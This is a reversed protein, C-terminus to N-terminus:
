PSLWILSAMRGTVGERRYSYFSEAGTYTCHDGGYVQTVGLGALRQRALSYIDMLGHGPRTAVFAAAAQPDPDVFAQRVEAGVEYAAPGIAPGLWVLIQDPPGTFQDLSAEIVGRALGRWGAHIAAVQTGARDCVLLPLCDATLVACVVGPRDSYAADAEM